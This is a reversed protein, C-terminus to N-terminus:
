LPASPVIIPWVSPTNADIIARYTFASPRLRRLQTAYDVSILGFRPAFGEAWEFNDLLSWYYYGHVPSGAIQAQRVAHLHDVLFRQRQADDHTAIGNETVLIPKKWVSLSKLLDELGDPAIEWGLDNVPHGPHSPIPSSFRPFRIWQRMYYNIGIFDQEAGVARLVADNFVFRTLATQRRDWFDPRDPQFSVLHHALGIMAQPRRQKLTRYIRRHLHVLRRTLRLAAFPNTQGPPWIGRLYGMVTYITPENITVYWTLLDGLQETTWEAFRVFHACVEDSLFGGADAAWKPLTFHFLTCLPTIQHDILWGLMHRYHDLAAFDFRGPEPEIRSWEISFRYSNIHLQDFLSFDELWRQWHDCAAGSREQHAIHGANEWATWNNHQYGEIQHSSTAGGWFFEPFQTPWKTM